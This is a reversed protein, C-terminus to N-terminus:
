LIAKNGELFTDKITKATIAMQNQKLHKVADYLDVRVDKLYDQIELTNERYDNKAIAKGLPISEIQDNYKIKVILNLDQDNKEETGFDIKLDM